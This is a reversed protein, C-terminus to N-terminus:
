TQGGCDTLTRVFLRGSPFIFITHFWLLLRHWISSSPFVSLRITFVIMYSATYTHAHFYNLEICNPLTVLLLVVCYNPTLLLLHSCIAFQTSLSFSSSGIDSIFCTVYSLRSSSLLRKTFSDNWINTNKQKREKWNNCKEMFWFFIILSKVSCKTHTQTNVELLLHCVIIAAFNVFFNAGLMSRVKLKTTTASERERRIWNIKLKSNM